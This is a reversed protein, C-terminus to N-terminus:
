EWLYKMVLIILVLVLTLIEAIILPASKIMLGYLLWLIVSISYIIYMASSIGEVTRLRSIKIVQPLFSITGLAAAIFGLLEQYIAINEIFNMM